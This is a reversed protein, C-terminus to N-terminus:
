SQGAINELKINRYIVVGGGGKFCVREQWLAMFARLPVLSPALHPLRLRSTTEGDDRGESVDRAAIASTSQDGGGGRKLPRAWCPLM